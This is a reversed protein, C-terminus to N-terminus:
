QENESTSISVFRPNEADAKSDDDEGLEEYKEDTLEPAWSPDKEERDSDESDDDEHDTDSLPEDPIEEKSPCATSELSLFKSFLEHEQVLM